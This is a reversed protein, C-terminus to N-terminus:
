AEEALFKLILENVEGPRELYGFHGCDEVEEYRSGPIADAVERGLHPPSVLDDAFSVVMCRVTIRRYDELRDPFDALALQAREGATVSTGSLAFLDLWDQVKAADNLTRRSLNQMAAVAAHYAAPLEVGKDFLARKGASLASQLPDSRGRVAMMVAHSVLDPRALALEQVVRAGLSTGVVRAKGGGLFEILAATDRVMDDITFGDPREESPPIGRNDFTAVRYGASVLAPVQHARWVTGSGGTGMVLVALEGSGEVRYNIRIGNIEAVPM